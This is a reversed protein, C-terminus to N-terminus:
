KIEEYVHEIKVSHPMTSSRRESIIRDGTTRPHMQQPLTRSEGCNMLSVVPRPLSPSESTLTCSPSYLYQTRDLCSHPHVLIELLHVNDSQRPVYSTARRCSLGSRSHRPFMMIEREHEPTNEVCMLGTDEHNQVTYSSNKVYTAGTKIGKDCSVPNPVLSTEASESTSRINCWLNAESLPIYLCGEECGERTLTECEELVAVHHQQTAFNLKNRKYTNKNKRSVRNDCNPTCNQYIGCIEGQREQQCNEEQPVSNNEESLSSRERLIRLFFCMIIVAILMVFTITLAVIVIIRETESINESSGQLNPADTIVNLVDNVFNLGSVNQLNFTAETELINDDTEESVSIKTSTSGMKIVETMSLSVTKNLCDDVYTQWYKTYEPCQQLVNLSLNRDWCRCVLPNEQMNLNKLAAMRKLVDDSLNALKNNDVYLSIEQLRKTSLVLLFDVSKLLNGSINLVRLFNLHYFLHGDILTLKNNSMHLRRLNVTRQFTEKPISHLSCNALNLSLLNVLHRFPGKDRLIINNGHLDLEEINTNYIFTDPHIYAIQNEGMFLSKLNKLSIFAELDINRIKNKYIYL